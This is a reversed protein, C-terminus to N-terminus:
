KVTRGKWVTEPIKDLHNAYRAAVFFWDSLRNIYIQAHKDIKEQKSLAVISREARRALARALHLGAGVKSGGPFIFNRLKPLDKEWTDIEKELRTIYSKSIRPIKVKVSLPSALDSGLVFLEGQIRVLKTVIHNKSKDDERFDKSCSSEPRGRLRLGSSLVSPRPDSMRGSSETGLSERDPRSHSSLYALVVGILSNLEDVEGYAKIRASDKEVRKGGFLSTTGNDGAKTYIKM